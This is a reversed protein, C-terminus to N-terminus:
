RVATRRWTRSLTACAARKSADTRLGRALDSAAGGVDEFRVNGDGWVARRLGSTAEIRRM